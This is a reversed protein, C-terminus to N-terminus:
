KKKELNKPCSIAQGDRSPNSTGKEHKFRYDIDDLQGNDGFKAELM